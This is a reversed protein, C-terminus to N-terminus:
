KMTEKKILPTFEAMVKLYVDRKFDIVLAPVEHAPFWGFDCFEIEDPNADFRLDEDTGEFRILFWKQKQGQYEKGTKPDVSIIGEPFDYTLWEKTQAIITAKEAGIGTEEWLERLAATQVEEGENMGGQPMQWAYIADEPLDSRRGMLIKGKKNFLCVGVNERYRKEQTM